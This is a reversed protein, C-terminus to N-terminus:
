DYWYKKRFNKLDALHVFSFLIAALILFVIHAVSFKGNAAGVIGSCLFAHMQFLFMYFFIRLFHNPIMRILKAFSSWLLSVIFVTVSIALGGDTLHLVSNVLLIIIIYFVLGCVESIIQGTKMRSYTGFGGRVSRFYKGGTSHTYYEKMQGIITGFACVYYMFMAFTTRSLAGTAESNDPEFVQGLTSVIFFRIFLYLVYFTLAAIGWLCLTQKVPDTGNYIKMADSISINSKNKEM